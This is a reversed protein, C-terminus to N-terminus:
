RHEPLRLDLGGSGRAMWWGVGMLSLALLMLGWRNAGTPPISELPTVPATAAVSWNGAYDQAFLTYHYDTGNELVMDRDDFWPNGGEYVIRQSSTETPSAAYGVPSRLLRTSSFDPDLPNTWVLVVRTDGGRVVSFSPAEPPTTDAPTPGTYALAFLSLHTTEFSVAAHTADVEFGAIAQWVGGAEDFHHPQVGAPLGLSPHWALRVTLPHALETITAPVRTAERLGLDFAPSAYGKGDPPPPSESPLLERVRLLLAPDSRPGTRMGAASTIEIAPAMATLCVPSGGTLVVLAERTPATHTFGLTSPPGDEDIRGDGDNDERLHAVPWPEAADAGPDPLSSHEIPDEDDAGDGDDDGDFYQKGPGGGCGFWEEATTIGDGNGNLDARSVSSPAGLKDLGKLLGATLCGNGSEAVGAKENWASAAIVELHGPQLPRGANDKIRSNSLDNLFSGSFCADLVVVLTVSREFGTLWQALEDDTISPPEDSGAERQACLKDDFAFEDKGGFGDLDVGGDEFDVDGDGDQDRGVLEWVGATKRWVSIEGSADKRIETDTKGDGDLDLRVPKDVTANKCHSKSFEVEDKDIKKTEDGDGDLVGGAYGDGADYGGGHGSFYFLFEDGPKSDGKAQEIAAKINAKTARNEAKEASQRLIRQNGETWSSGYTRLKQTLDDVDKGASPLDGDMGVFVGRFRTAKTTDLVKSVADYSTVRELRGQNDVDWTQDWDQDGWTGDGDLDVIISLQGGSDPQGAEAPLELVFVKTRGAQGLARRATDAGQNVCTVSDITGDRDNDVWVEDAVGDGDWDIEYVTGKDDDTPKLRVTTSGARAAGAPRAPGLAGQVIALLLLGLVLLLLGRIRAGGPRRHTQVSVAGTGGM